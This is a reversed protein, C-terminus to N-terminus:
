IVSSEFVDEELSNKRVVTMGQKELDFMDDITSEEVDTYENDRTVWDEDPYWLKYCSDCIYIEDESQNNELNYGMDPIRKNCSSCQTDEMTKIEPTKVLNSVSYNKTSM